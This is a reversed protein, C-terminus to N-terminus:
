VKDQTQIQRGRRNFTNKEGTNVFKESRGDYVGVGERARQEAGETCPANYKGPLARHVSLSPHTPCPHCLRLAFRSSSARGGRWRRAGGNFWGGLPGFGREQPLPRM